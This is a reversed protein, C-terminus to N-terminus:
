DTKKDQKILRAIMSLVFCVTAITQAHPLKDLLAPPMSVFGYNLFEVVGMLFLAIANIQVSWLKWADRWGPILKMNEPVM